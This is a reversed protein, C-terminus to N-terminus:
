GFVGHAKAVILALAITTDCIMATLWMVIPTRAGLAIMFMIVTM